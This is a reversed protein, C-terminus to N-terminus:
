ANGDNKAADLLDQLEKRILSDRLEQESPDITELSSIFEMFGAYEDMISPFEDTGVYSLTLLAGMFFSDYVFDVVYPTFDDFLEYLEERTNTVKKKKKRFWGFWKM